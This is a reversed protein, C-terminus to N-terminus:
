IIFSDVMTPILLRKSYVARQDQEQEYDIWHAVICIIERRFHRKCTSLIVKRM